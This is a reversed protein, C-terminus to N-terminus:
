GVHGNESLTSNKGKSGLAPLPCTNSCEYNWKIQYAVHGHQLFTSNQGEKNWIWPRPPSAPLINAVINSCEQNGKIQYVVHGHEPGWSPPYPDARLVNAVM